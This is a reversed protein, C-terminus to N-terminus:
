NSIIGADLSSHLDKDIIVIENELKKLIKEEKGDLKRHKVVIQGCIQSVSIVKDEIKCLYKDIVCVWAEPIDRFVICIYKDDLYDEDDYKFNHRDKFIKVFEDISVM